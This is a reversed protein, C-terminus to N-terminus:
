GVRAFEESVVRRLEDDVGFVDFVTQDLGRVAEWYADLAAPSTQEELNGIADAISRRADVVEEAADGDLVRWPLGAVAALSLEVHDNYKPTGRGRLLWQFLSSNLVAECVRLRDLDDVVAFAGGTGKITVCDGTEDLAAHLVRGISRVLVKPRALHDIIRGPQPHDGFGGRGEILSREARTLAPLNPHDFPLLLRRSRQLRFASVDGASIFYPLRRADVQVGDVRLRGSDSRTGGTWDVTLAKNRSTQTGALVMRGAAPDDLGSDADALHSSLHSRWRAAFATWRDLDAVERRPINRAAYRVKTVAASSEVFLEDRAEFDVEDGPALVVACVYVLAQPFAQAGGFDIVEAADAALHERLARGGKGAIAARPLVFGATGRPARYGWFREVFMYALDANHTWTAAFRLRQGERSSGGIGKSRALQSAFPPNTVVVDVEGEPLWARWDISEDDLSDGAVLNLEPLQRTGLDAAELLRLRALLLSAEDLDAGYISSRLVELALRERGRRGQRGDPQFYRMLRGFSAVLFAGTGCAPDLVRVEAPSAPRNADLWAGLTREVLVEAVAPPTYYAAFRARDDRAGPVPFLLAEGAADEPAPRAQLYAQYLRGAVDPDTVSFDLALADWPEIMAELLSTLDAEGVEGPAVAPAEFLASDFTARYDGLLTTAAAVLDGSVALDDLRVGRLPGHRDEFFRIFLLQHFTRLLALDREAAEGASGAFFGSAYFRSRVGILTLALQEALKPHAGLGRDGFVSDAAPRGSSDPQVLEFLNAAAVEAADVVALPTDGPRLLWRRVDLLSVSDTDAVVALDAEASYGFAAAQRASAGMDLVAVRPDGQYGAVFGGPRGPRPAVRRQVPWRADGVLGELITAVM